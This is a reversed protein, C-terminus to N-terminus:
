DLIYNGLNIAEGGKTLMIKGQLQSSPGQQVIIYDYNEKAIKKQFIGDDLHDILAYNPHCLSETDLEVKCEKAIYELIKPLENYYTLSNGLFLIKQANIYYGISLLVILLITRKRM